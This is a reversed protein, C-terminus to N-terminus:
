PAIELKKEIVAAPKAVLLLGAIVLAIGTWRQPAINEHLFIWCGIPILVHVVNILGYAIGLPVTRLVYLWSLFSACYLIIGIWTFGSQLAAIGFVGITLSKSAAGTKMLLEAATVLM